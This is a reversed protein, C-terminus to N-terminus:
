GVTAVRVGLSPEVDATGEGVVPVGDSVRLVWAPCGCAAFVPDSIDRCLVVVRQKVGVIKRVTSSDNIVVEDRGPLGVQDM